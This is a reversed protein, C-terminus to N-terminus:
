LPRDTNAVLEHLRALLTESTLAKVDFNSDWGIIRDEPRGVFAMSWKEFTRSLIPSFELLIVDGHRPDQQIREFTTEIAAQSGELVQGFFGASFMLAGTVGVLENNRRSSILIRNIESSLDSSTGRIKNESYYVIRYDSM